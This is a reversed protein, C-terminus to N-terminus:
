YSAPDINNRRNGSVPCESKRRRRRPYPELKNITTRCFLRLIQDNIRTGIRVEEDTTDDM